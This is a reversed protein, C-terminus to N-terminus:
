KIIFGVRGNYAGAPAADGVGYLRHMRGLFNAEGDSPNHFNDTPLAIEHRAVPRVTYPTVFVVLETEDNQFDRSRFLAGLVPVDKAGPVGNINHKTSEQLLGAIVLSGGSPLEVTTDARRVKLGPITLSASANPANISFAGDSTIESVETKIRLSIRGESLVVPTFALGVGFPKFEIKIEGNDAAVPVPFEGGALFSASEGSIATLTPAALTRLAGNEEMLRLIGSITTDGRKYTVGAQTNSLATGAVTFPNNSILRFATEGATNIAADFDVGLQKAAHRQVEAITVKLFIQDKGTVAIMNLVKKPDGAFRGAIDAARAADAQSTATGSLVVNENISDIKIRADPILKRFMDRLVAVDREIHLELAVIQRGAEDFFFINTQGVEMGIIYARRPTRMVADAKTPSSVLVDKAPRPLDVVLSKNLGLRIIQVGGHLNDQAPITLHQSGIDAARAAGPAWVAACLAAIALGLLAALRHPRLRREAARAGCSRMQGHM